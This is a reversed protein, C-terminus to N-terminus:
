CRGYYRCLNKHINNAIDMTEFANDAVIDCLVEEIYIPLFVNRAVMEAHFLEHCLVHHLLDGNINDAIYITRESPVTIGLTFEGRDSVLVDSDSPVFYLNWPEENIYFMM